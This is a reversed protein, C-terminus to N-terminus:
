GIYWEPHRDCPDAPADGDDHGGVTVRPEPVTRMLPKAIAPRRLVIATGAGSGAGDRGTARESVSRFLTTAQM